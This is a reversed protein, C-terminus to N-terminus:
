GKKFCYNERWLCFLHLDGDLTANKLSCELEFGMETVLNISKSNGASIPATIRKVGLQRFPYDFIASLFEKTAWNGEGAIHCVINQKNYDEYLVGAILRGDSIKGIATGRGPTWTGGTRDCVWPGVINADFCLNV